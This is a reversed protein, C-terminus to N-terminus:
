MSAFTASFYYVIYNVHKSLWEKNVEFARDAEDSKEDGEKGPSNESKDDRNSTDPDATAM